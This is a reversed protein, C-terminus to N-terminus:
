KERRHWTGRSANIIFEARLRPRDDFRREKTEDVGFRSADKFRLTVAIGDFIAIGSHIRMDRPQRSQKALAVSHKTHAAAVRMEHAARALPERAEIGRTLRSKHTEGEFKFFRIRSGKIVAVFHTAAGLPRDAEFKDGIIIWWDDNIRFLDPRM